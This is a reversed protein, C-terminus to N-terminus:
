DGKVSVNFIEPVFGEESYIKLREGFHKITHNKWSGVILNDAIDFLTVEDKFITVNDGKRLGRGISQLNRIRSKSPFAFIMNHINKISIATQFTGYSVCAICGDIAELEKRIDNRIEGDVGGHILYLNRGASKPDSDLLDYLVQGHKEVYNFFILTNGKLSLALNKIFRNRGAHGVLFDVEKPYEAKKMLKKTADPYQLVICRINLGAIYGADQLQKTTVIQKVTGFLGELVMKNTPIGDLTGTFGFRFRANSVREVITTMAAAKYHHAEDCVLVGFRSFWEKPMKLLSQWTSVVIPHKTKKEVGGMIGHMTDIDQGFSEFDEIMQRVAATSDVVLLTPLELMELYFKVILYIMFSKGSSTPSLFLARNKRICHVFTELQYDRVDLDIKAHKVVEDLFEKAEALSFETDSMTAYDWSVDYDRSKCFEVVKELLGAYITSTRLDFLRIRGDWAKARVKPHFRYNDILFSFEENLERKIGNDADVKLYVEDVKSM